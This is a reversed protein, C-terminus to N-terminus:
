VCLLVPVLQSSLPSKTGEIEEHFATHQTHIFLLILFIVLPTHPHWDNSRTSASPLKMKVRHEKNPAWTGHHRHAQRGTLCGTAYGLIEWMHSTREDEALPFTTHAINQHLSQKTKLSTDCYTQTVFPLHTSPCPSKQLHEPQNHLYTTGSHNNDCVTNRLPTLALLTELIQCLLLQHKQQLLVEVERTTVGVGTAKNSLWAFNNQTQGKFHWVALM